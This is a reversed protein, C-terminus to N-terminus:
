SFNGDVHLLQLQLFAHALLELVHTGIDLACGLFQRICMGGLPM